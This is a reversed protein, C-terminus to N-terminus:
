RITFIILTYPHGVMSLKTNSFAPLTIHRVTKWQDLGRYEFIGPPLGTAQTNAITMVQVFVLLVCCM